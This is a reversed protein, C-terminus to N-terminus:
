RYISIVLISGIILCSGIVGYFTLQEQFFLIGSVYMMPISSTMVMSSVGAPSFKFGGTMLLQGILGVVAMLVLPNLFSVDLTVQNTFLTILIVISAVLYTWFVIVSTTNTHRLQKLTLYVGANLLSGMLAMMNAVTVSFGSEPKIVLVMGFIAIPVAVISYLTPKDKFILVSLCFAWVTSCEFILMTQGLAGLKFANFLCYMASLGFVIRLVLVLPQNVRFSVRKTTMYPFLVLPGVAFRFFMIMLVAVSISIIKVLSFSATYFVNALVLM